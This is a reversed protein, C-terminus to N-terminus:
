QQGRSLRPRYPFLFSLNLSPFSFFFLSPSSLFEHGSLSLAIVRPSLRYLHLISPIFFVIPPLTFSVFHLKRRM